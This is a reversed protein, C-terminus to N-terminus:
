LAREKDPSGIAPTAHTAVPAIDNYITAIVFHCNKCLLDAADTFKGSVDNGDMEGILLPKIAECQDCWIRNRGDVDDPAADRGSPILDRVTEKHGLMILVCGEAWENEGGRSRLFAVLSKAELTAIDHSGCKGDLWARVYIGTVGDGDSIRAADVIFKPHVSRTESTMGLAKDIIGNVVMARNPTYREEGPECSADEEGDFLDRIENLAALAEDRQYEMEVARASIKTVALGIEVVERELQRAFDARVWKDEGHMRVRRICGDGEDWAADVRPTDSSASM